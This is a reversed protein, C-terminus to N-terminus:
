IKYITIIEHKDKKVQIVARYEDFGEITARYTTSELLKGGHPKIHNEVFSYIATVWKDDMSAVIEADNSGSYVKDFLRESIRVLGHTSIELRNEM